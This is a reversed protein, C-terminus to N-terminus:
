SAPYTAKRVLQATWDIWIIWSAAVYGSIIWSNLSICVEKDLEKCWCVALTDILITINIALALNSTRGHGPKEDSLTPSLVSGGGGVAPKSL